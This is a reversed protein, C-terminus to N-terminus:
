EFAGLTEMSVGNGEFGKAQADSPRWTIILFISPGSSFFIAQGIEQFSEKSMQTM